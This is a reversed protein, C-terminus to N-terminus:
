ARDHYWMGDRVLAWDAPLVGGERIIEDCRCLRRLRYHMYVYLM